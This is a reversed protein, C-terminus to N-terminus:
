STSDIRSAATSSRPRPLRVTQWARLGGLVHSCIARPHGLRRVLRGFSFAAYCRRSTPTSDVSAAQSRSQSRCIAAGARNASMPSRTIRWRERESTTSCDPVANKSETAEGNCGCPLEFRTWSGELEEVSICAGERRHSCRRRIHRSHTAGRCGPQRHLM